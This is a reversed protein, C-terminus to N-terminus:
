GAPAAKHPAAQRLRPEAQECARMSAQKLRYDLKAPEAKASAVVFMLSLLLAVPLFLNM